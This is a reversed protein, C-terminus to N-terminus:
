TSRIEDLYEIFVKAAPSLEYSRSYMLFVNMTEHVDEIEVRRVSGAELWTRASRLPVLSVGLGGAVAENVATTGELQAVITQESDPFGELLKMTRARTISGEERMVKPLQAFTALDVVDGVPDDKPVILTLEEVFVPVSVYVPNDTEGVQVAFDIEARDLSALVQSTNGVRVNLQIGPYDRHFDALVGPLVHQGATTVAAIWISGKDMSRYSAAVRELDDFRNLLDGAAELVAQGAPTLTIRAPSRDFLQVGLHSELQRIKNSVNPQSTYLARAAQSFSLSRAVARFYQLQQLTVAM